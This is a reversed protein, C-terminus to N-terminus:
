RTVVRSSSTRQNSTAICSALAHAAGLGTALQVGLDLAEDVPCPGREVRERLTAGELLESVLFVTRQENGVDFITLINPHNLASAARAEQEFRHLRGVDTAADPALVKIAVDRQLRTDRARYVEGMGGAGIANVIEYRGLRTGSTLSMPDPAAKRACYPARNTM